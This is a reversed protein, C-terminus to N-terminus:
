YEDLFVGYFNIIYYDKIWNNYSLLSEEHTINYFISPKEVIEKIITNFLSSPKPITDYVIDGKKTVVKLKLKKHCKGCIFEFTDKELNVDDIIYHVHEDDFLYMTIIKSQITKIPIKQFQKNNESTYIINAVVSSFKNKKIFKSFSSKYEFNNLEYFEKNHMLMISYLSLVINFTDFFGRYKNINNWILGFFYFIDNRNSPNVKNILFLSYVVCFLLKGITLEDKLEYCGIKYLSYLTNIQEKIILMEKELSLNHVQKNEINANKMKKIYTSFMKMSNEKNSIFKMISIHVHTRENFIFSQSLVPLRKKLDFVSMALIEDKINHTLLSKKLDPQIQNIISSLAEEFIEKNNPNSKFKYVMDLNDTDINSVTGMEVDITLLFALLIKYFKLQIEKYIQILENSNFNYFSDNPECLKRIANVQANLENYEKEIENRFHAFVRDKVLSNAERDLCKETKKEDGGINEYYNISTKIERTSDRFVSIINYTNNREKNNISKLCDFNDYETFIYFTCAMGQQMDEQVNKIMDSNLPSVMRYCYHDQFNDFPHALRTICYFIPFLFNFDNSIVIYNSGKVIIDIFQFIQNLTFIKFFLKLNLDIMPLHQPFSIVHNFEKGFYNSIRIINECNETLKIHRSLHLLYGMPDSIKKWNEYFDLLLHSCLNFCPEETVIIFAKKTFVKTQNNYLYKQPVQEYYVICNFNLEDYRQKEEFRHCFSHFKPRPLEISDLLDTEIYYEDCNKFFRGEMQNRSLVNLSMPLIKAIMELRTKVENSKLADPIYFSQDLLLYNTMVPVLTTLTDYHYKEKPQSEISFCFKLFEKEKKM